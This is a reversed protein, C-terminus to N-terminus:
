LERTICRGGEGDLAIQMEDIIILIIDHTFDNLPDTRDRFIIYRRIAIREHLRMLIFAAM